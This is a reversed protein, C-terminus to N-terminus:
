SRFGDEGILPVFMCGCLEHFDMKEKRKIAKVLTQMFTNGVPVLIIGDEKLQTRLYRPIYPSAATVVIRDYLMEESREPYGLTGDGFVISVRDFYGTRRLNDRAFDILEHVREISIVHGQNVDSETPKVIEAMLAASYGSGAGIELVKLGKKLDFEELMIAVMHPASITQGTNGLPLPTDEYALHKMNYWVFEERPVKLFAMEVEKSRIVGLRVLREVMRKRLLSYDIDKKLFVM